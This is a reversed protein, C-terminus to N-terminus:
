LVSDDQFILVLEAPEGGEFSLAKRVGSVDEIIFALDDATGLDGSKDDLFTEILGAFNDTRFTSGTTPVTSDNWTATFEFTDSRDTPGNAFTFTPATLTDQLKITANIPSSNGSRATFEIYADVINAGELSQLDLDTFRLGIDRGNDGLELDTKTLNVTGANANQDTDDSGAVIAKRLTVLGASIDETVSIAYDQVDTLDGDSVTVEINYVNDVGEDIPADFDPATNFTVVGTTSNISFLGQDAGGSISYTLTDGNADTANVDLATTTGELVSATAGGLIVPAAPGTPIFASDAATAGPTSGGNKNLEWFDVHYGDSRGALTITHFGSTLNFSATFNADEESVSDIQSSYGWGTSAGFVKVFGSNSVSNTPNTQLAEADDDIKLWIDNRQDDPTNTDRSSRARFSYVGDEGDPIFITYELFSNSQPTNVGPNASIEEEWYYHGTGGTNDQTGPDDGEVYVWSGGPNTGGNAVNPDEIQVKFYADNGSGNIQYYGESGPNGGGGEVPTGNSALYVRDVPGLPTDDGAVVSAAIVIPATDFGPTFASGGFDQGGDPNNYDFATVPLTATGSGNLIVKFTQFDAANSAQFEPQSDALRDAVLDAVGSSTNTVPNLGKSLTVLVTAGAPGNVTIVPPTGGYTGATSSDFGNVTVTAM